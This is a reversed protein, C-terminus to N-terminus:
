NKAKSENSSSSTGPNKVCKSLAVDWVYVDDVKSNSGRAVLLEREQSVEMMSESAIVSANFMTATLLLITKM